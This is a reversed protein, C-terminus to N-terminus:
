QIEFGLAHGVTGVALDDEDFVGQWALLYAHLDGARLFLQSCAV